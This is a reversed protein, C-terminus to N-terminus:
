RPAARFLVNAIGGHIWAIAVRAAFSREWGEGADVLRLADNLGFRDVESKPERLHAVRLVPNGSILGDANRVAAVQKHYRSESERHLQHELYV